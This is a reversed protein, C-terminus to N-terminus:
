VKGAQQTGNSPLVVSLRRGRRRVNSYLGDGVIEVEVMDSSDVEAGGGVSAM